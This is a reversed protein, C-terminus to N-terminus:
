YIHLMQELLHEDEYSKILNMLKCPAKQKKHLKM